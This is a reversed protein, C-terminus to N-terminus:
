RNEELLRGLPDRDLPAGPALRERARAFYERALERNGHLLHAAGMLAYPGPSAPRADLAPGMRGFIDGALRARDPEAGVRLALERVAAILEPPDAPRDSLWPVRPDAPATPRPAAPWALVALAAAATPLLLWLPRRPRLALAFDRATAFRDAPNKALARRLVDDVRRSAGTPPPADLELAALDAFPPRGALMEYLISALSYVDSRADVEEPSSFVQEPSRHGPRFADEPPTRGFGGIAVKGDPGVQLDSPRLDRHVLGRDHAAQLELAADAVLRLARNMSLTM